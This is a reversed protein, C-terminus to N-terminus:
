ALGDDIRMGLPLLQCRPAAQTSSSDTQDAKNSRRAFDSQTSEASTEGQAAHHNDSSAPSIEAFREHSSGASTAADAQRSNAGSMQAAAPESSEVVVCRPAPGPLRNEDCRYRNTAHGAKLPQTSM